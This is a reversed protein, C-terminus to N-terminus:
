MELLEGEEYPKIRKGRLFFIFSGVIFILVVLSCIELMQRRQLEEAQQKKLVIIEAPRREYRDILELIIADLDVYSDYHLFFKQVDLTLDSYDETQFNEYYDQLKFVDEAVEYLSPAISPNKYVHTKAQYAYAVQYILEEKNALSLLDVGYPFENYYGVPMTLTPFGTQPAIAWSISSISNGKANALLRTQEMLTPYLVVDVENKEFQTTIHKKFSEREKMLQSYYSTNRFDSTCYYNLDGLPNVYAKTKVLDNFSRIQSNTGEIYQNFDYCFTEGIFKYYGNYFYTIPVIEAGLSKLEELASNVLARIGRNSSYLYPTLVGIRIGTLDKKLSTEYSIKNDTLISLLIANDEVNRTIPGVVDRSDDFKIVGETNVLGYTSRMGVVGNASSPVRISVGTDTGIGAVALNAAVAVATGGSSGYSTYKTHYANTVKGFSSNSEAAYLAFESMNTKGIVIAGADLLKQILPANQYPYSDLLAKTGATTPFGVVDINDKIAIPLGHILSRRGKERYELDMQRAQELANENLTIFAHYQSDYAEIRELYFKMLSEYTLYGKDIAEQIEYINMCTPDVPLSTSALASVNPFLFLLFFCLIRKM